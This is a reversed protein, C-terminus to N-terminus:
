ECTDYTDNSKRVTDYYQYLYCIISYQYPSFNTDKQLYEQLMDWALIIENAVCVIIVEKTMDEVKIILIKKASGLRSYTRLSQSM